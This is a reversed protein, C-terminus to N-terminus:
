VRTKTNDNCLLTVSRHKKKLKAIVRAQPLQPLWRRENTTELIQLPEKEAFRNKITCIPRVYSTRCQFVIQSERQKLFKVPVNFKYCFKTGGVTYWLISQYLRILKLFTYNFFRIWFGRLKNYLEFFHNPRCQM